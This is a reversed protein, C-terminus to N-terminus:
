LLQGKSGVYRMLLKKKDAKLKEFQKETKILGKAQEKTIVTGPM